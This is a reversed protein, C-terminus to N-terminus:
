ELRNVLDVANFFRGRAGGLICSHGIAIAFRSKGGRITMTNIGGGRYGEAASAYLMVDSALHYQIRLDPALGTDALQDRLGREPGAPGDRATSAVELASRFLRAGASVSFRSSLPLTVEGFLALEDILDSRVETYRAEGSAAAPSDALRSSRGSDGDAYFVGVFWPIVAGSASALRTENLLISLTRTEDFSQVAGNMVPFDAFAGTADFRSYLQHRVVSTASTLNAWEWEGRLTLAAMSFDNDHPELLRAQRRAGDASTTLYQSDRTAIEQQAGALQVSWTDDIQALVTIRGGSRHSSNANALDLSRNDIWGGVKEDYLVGRVVLADSLLPQNFVLDISHGVDGSDTVELSGQMMGEVRNLAPPTSEIHLIGGLSGAGYLAGQPGKLVEVGKVDILRIDPDPADYTIRTDDLYIGALSQSRGTLAGDSL